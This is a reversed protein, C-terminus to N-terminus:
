AAFGQVPAPLRLSSAQRPGSTYPRWRHHRLTLANSSAVMYDDTLGKLRLAYVEDPTLAPAFPELAEVGEKKTLKEM